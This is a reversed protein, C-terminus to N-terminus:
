TLLALPLLLPPILIPLILLVVEIDEEGLVLTAVLGAAELDLDMKSGLLVLLLLVLVLM